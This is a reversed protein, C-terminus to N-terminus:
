GINPGLPVHAAVINSERTFILIDHMFRPDPVKSFTYARYNVHPSQHTAARGLKIQRNNM